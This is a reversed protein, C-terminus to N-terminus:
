ASRQECRPYSVHQPLRGSLAAEAAVAGAAEGMAAANGSVRYSSHAVFDGSVCRGAMLLGNVDCAILARLPIDYPRSRIGQSYGKDEDDVRVSHVDVGFHVTCVADEHRTGRILDETTVTYLGHIRRGERVGIQDATAVVRLGSWLGGLSRLGDVIAHVEARAQFTAETVQAADCGRVGYQHNAMLMFLDDYIPYLGPNLYSPQVGARQIEAVLRAKTERGPEGPQRVFPEADGYRVGTVLALLSMPQTASDERRGLDYGCGCYAALDGDGTCDVFVKGAWAQRGSKSETIAYRVHNAGDSAAAVVRTHLQTGIGAELCMEELLRKMAEADYAFAQNGGRGPTGAGRRELEGRIERILGPKDDSDLIWCLLGATWIGGLCGGVELLRTRAGARAAAIAASVGAPGAGCVVVEAREVVPVVREAEVYVAGVTDWLSSTASVM